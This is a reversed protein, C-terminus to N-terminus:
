NVLYLIIVIFSLEYLSRRVPQRWISEKWYNDHCIYISLLQDIFICLNM